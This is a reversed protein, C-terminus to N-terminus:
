ITFDFNLVYRCKYKIPSNGAHYQHGDFYIADGQKPTNQLIIKKDIDELVNNFNEERNFFKNFIFTDGDSDNLYYVLTKYPGEYDFLDTHPKNFLFKDRDPHQFTLRLRVRLIKKVFVNTKQTFFYLLPRFLGWYKSDEQDQMVLGHSFGINNLFKYGRTNPSNENYGISPTYFFPIEELTQKLEEQYVKPIIKELILPKM